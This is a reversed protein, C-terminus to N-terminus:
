HKVFSRIKLVAASIIRGDKLETTQLELRHCLDEHYPIETFRFQGARWANLVPTQYHRRRCGEIRWRQALVGMAEVISEGLKVTGRINSRLLCKRGGSIQVGARLNRGNM